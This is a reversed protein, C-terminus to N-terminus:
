APVKEPERERMPAETPVTDPMRIPEPINVIEFEKGINAM